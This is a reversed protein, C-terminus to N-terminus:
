VGQKSIDEVTKIYRRSNQYIKEQKSIDDGKFGDWM